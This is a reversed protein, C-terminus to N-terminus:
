QGCFDCVDVETIQDKELFIKHFIAPNYTVYFMLTM